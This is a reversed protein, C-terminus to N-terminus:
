RYHTNIRLPEVERAGTDANVVTSVLGLPDPYLHTPRQQGREGRKRCARQAFSGLLALGGMRAAGLNAGWGVAHESAVDPPDSGALGHRILVRISPYVVRAPAPVPSTSPVRPLVRAM